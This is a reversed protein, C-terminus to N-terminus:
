VRIAARVARVVQEKEDDLLAPSGPLLVYRDPALRSTTVSFAPRATFNKQDSLPYFVPRVEVGREICHTYVKPFTCGPPLEFAPLWENSECRPLIPRMEGALERRYYNALKRKQELITPLDEFQALAVAAQLNTLRYNSGPGRHRYGIETNHNRFSRMWRAKQEDSTVVVGGEGAAIIKNAFFSYVGAQGWTGLARNEYFCGLGEASDELLLLNKKRCLKELRDMKPCSGYLSALVLVGGADDLLELQDLDLQLDNDCDFLDVRAGLLELGSLTAIYSLNGTLVRQRGVEWARYILDLGTTGSSVCLAYKAGVYRAIAEELREEYEGRWSLMNKDLCDIVYEHQRRAVWPTYVHIM